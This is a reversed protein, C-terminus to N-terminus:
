KGREQHAFERGLDREKGVKKIVEKELKKLAESISKTLDWSFDKSFFLGTHAVLKAKVSYKIREGSKKHRTVNLTLYDIPTIKGLKKVESKIESDIVNKIFSDEDQIGSLQVYVGSVDRGVLKLIERPTIIGLLKGDEEVVVTDKKNELMMKVIYELGTDQGARLIDTDMITHSSIAVDDQKIKEGVTDGRPHRPKSIMSSLLGISDILGAVGGSENLVVLRYVYNNKLVSKAVSLQDSASVCSPYIMVHSAKKKKFAENSLMNLLGFKTLVKIENGDQIPMSKYNNVLMADVVKDIPTDGDIPKVKKVLSLQSLKTKDPDPINKRSIDRALILGKFEKGDFVLAEHKKESQLKSIVKSLRDNFDFKLPSESVQLLTM